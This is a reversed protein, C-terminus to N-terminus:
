QRCRDSRVREADDETTDSTLPDMRGPANPSQYTIEGTDFNTCIYGTCEVHAIVTSRDEALIEGHFGGQFNVHGRMCTRSTYDCHFYRRAGLCYREYFRKKYANPFKMVPRADASAPATACLILAAAVMLKRM